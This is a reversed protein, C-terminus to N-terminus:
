VEAFLEFQRGLKECIIELYQADVKDFAALANSDVDLVGLIKGSPTLIPVVIESQTTSSCAIHHSLQSVDDVLQTERLRAAKGCVGKSFPIRLCGHTGQYPGIVLMDGPLARYFGTWDFHEFSNHLECAVTSMAAIWDTEGALLADIRELVERYLGPRDNAHSSLQHSALEM